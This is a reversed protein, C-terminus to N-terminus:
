WRIWTMSRRSPQFTFRFAHIATIAEFAQL